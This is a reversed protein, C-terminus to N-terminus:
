EVSADLHMCTLRWYCVLLFAMALDDNQGDIKGTIQGKDNDTFAELQECLVNILATPNSQKKRSDYATGDATALDASVRIRNELLLNYVVSLSAAKTDETTWVGVGDTIGRPFRTRVFPNWIPGFQKFVAVLSSSFVENNNCECVPVIPADQHPAIWPHSRIRRLFMGVVSQLEVTQCRAASVNGAGIVYIQGCQDGVIAVLGMDSVGHSAPDIGVWVTPIHGRPFPSCSTRPATLFAAKTLKQPLYAKYKSAMVGFVEANFTDCESKPMLKAIAGLALVPKWPPLCFLRHSCQAAQGTEQCEKCSLSHNVLQFFMDGRENAAEVGKCFTDFFGRPPAPTTCCTFIRDRIQLLPLAFTYWFGASTFAAEDFIGSKFTDGRCTDPNKPRALVQQAPKGNCGVEFSTANDREFRIDRWEDHAGEAQMWHLYEKAAKLLEAARDLKTSYVCCLIGGPLKAALTIAAIFKGLTTTKGQQRNTVWVLNNSRMLIGKRALASDILTYYKPHIETAETILKLHSAILRSMIEDNPGFRQNSWPATGLHAILRVFRLIDNAVPDATQLAAATSNNLRQRKARALQYNQILKPRETPNTKGSQDSRAAVVVDHIFAGMISALGLPGNTSHDGNIIASTANQAWESMDSLTSSMMCPNARM